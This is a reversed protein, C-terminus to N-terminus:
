VQRHQRRGPHRDLAPNGTQDRLACIQAVILGRKKIEDLGTARANGILMPMAFQAALLALMLRRSLFSSCTLPYMTM